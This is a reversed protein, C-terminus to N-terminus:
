LAKRITPGMQKIDLKPIEAQVIKPRITVFNKVTRKPPLCSGSPIPTMGIVIDDGTQRFISDVTQGSNATDVKQTAAAFQKDTYVSVRKFREM